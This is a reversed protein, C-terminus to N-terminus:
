LQNDNKQEGEIFSILDQPKIRYQGGIKVAKLNGESVYRWATHHTLNLYKAVEALTMLSERDLM